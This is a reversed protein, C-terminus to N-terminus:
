RRRRPQQSRRFRQEEVLSGAVQRPVVTEAAPAAHQRQAQASAHHEPSLQAEVVGRSEDRRLLPQIGTSGRADTSKLLVLEARQHVYCTVGDVRDGSNRGASRLRDVLEPDLGVAGGAQVAGNRETAVGQEN